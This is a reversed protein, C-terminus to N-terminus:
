WKIKEMLEELASEVREDQSAKLSLYLSFPDVRDDKAFLDSNYLWIELEVEATDPTPLEELGLQRWKEWQNLSTAFVPLLPPALLSFHSLATLGAIIKPRHNKLWIRKKVPSRLFPAAQEWLSQKNSFTWWRERRELFFEGIHAAKLEAFIRNITMLAYGLKEALQSSTLKEDTQRTLAYIIVAQTAPSFTKDKKSHLMRFHERLDIGFHPLYMQNGPIIFPIGQIVLRKRNYSSLSSQAYVIFDNCNKQVQKYHKDILGPTIESGEKAIMLLCPRDFISFKYFEYSDMLFFPFNGPIKWPHFEVSINLAERLYSKLSEVIERM